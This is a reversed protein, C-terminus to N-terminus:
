LLGLLEREFNVQTWFIGSLLRELWHLVDELIDGSFEAFTAHGM